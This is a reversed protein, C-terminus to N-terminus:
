TGSGDDAFAVAGVEAAAPCSSPAKAPADKNKNNSNNSNNTTNNTTTISTTRTTRTTTITPTTQHYHQRRHQQEQQEQRDRREEGEEQLGSFTSAVVTDQTQGKGCLSTGHRPRRGTRAAGVADAPRQPLHPLLNIAQLQM